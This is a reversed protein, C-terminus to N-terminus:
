RAAAREVGAQIDAAVDDPSSEGGLLAALGNAASDSSGRGMLIHPAGDGDTLWSTMDAMVPDEVREAATKTCPMSNSENMIRSYRDAEFTFRLFELAADKHPSTASVAFAAGAQNATWHRAGSRLAPNRMVRYNEVFEPPAEQAFGQPTWSGSFLMAAQGTYLMQEAQNGAIGNPNAAFVEEQRLREVLELSEVVEPSEWSAGDRQQDLRVVLEPDDTIQTILPLWFDLGSTGPNNSLVLPERGTDRVARAVEILDDWTEPVDTGADALAAPDYFVGFTQAMWGVAYQGDGDSFLGNASDFFEGVFSEGLEERLNATIGNRGYELALVHPAFVEPPDGAAVAAQLAPLYEDPSGFLRNRVEIDPHAEQFEEVLRPWQDRQENYWHWLRVVPRGSSGGSSGGCASLLPAAAFAATGLASARLVQRRSPRRTTSFSVM